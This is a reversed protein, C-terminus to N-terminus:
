FLELNSYNIRNWVEWAKVAMCFKTRVIKLGFKVYAQLTFHYWKIFSLDEESRGNLGTNDKKRNNTSKGEM